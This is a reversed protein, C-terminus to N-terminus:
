QENVSYGSKLPRPYQVKITHIEFPKTPVIVSGNKMSLAGTPKEMLDTESAASAFPPVQLAVDGTKGAWEFFRLVLSNDDEAKKVASVIINDSQSEIFSNEPALM